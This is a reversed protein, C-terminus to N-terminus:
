GCVGSDEFSCPLILLTAVSGSISTSANYMIVSSPGLRFKLRTHPPCCWVHSMWFSVGWASNSSRIAHIADCTCAVPVTSCATSYPTLCTRFDSFLSCVTVVVLRTVTCCAVSQWHSSRCRTVTMTATISTHTKFVNAKAAGIDRSAMAESSGLPLRM